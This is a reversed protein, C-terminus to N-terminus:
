NLKGVMKCISLELASFQDAISTPDVQHMRNQLKLSLSFIWFIITTTEVIYNFSFLLRSNNNSYGQRDSALSLKSPKHSCKIIWRLM